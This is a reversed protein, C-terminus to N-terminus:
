GNRNEIFILGLCQHRHRPGTTPKAAVTSYEDVVLRLVPPLQFHVAEGLAMPEGSPPLLL